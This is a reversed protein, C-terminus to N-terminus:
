APHIAARVGGPNRWLSNVAPPPVWTLASGPSAWNERHPWDERHPGPQCPAHPLFVAHIGVAVILPAFRRPSCGTTSGAHAGLGALGLEGPPALEGPPPGASLARSSPIGPTNRGFRLSSRRAAVRDAPISRRGLGWRSFQAARTEDCVTQGPHIAPWVGRPNWWLSNPRSPDGTSRRTPKGCATLLRSRGRRLKAGRRPAIGTPPRREQPGLREYASNQERARNGAAPHRDHM